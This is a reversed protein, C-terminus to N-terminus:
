TAGESSDDDEGARSKATAAMIRHFDDPDAPSGLRYLRSLTRVWAGDPDAFWLPSTAAMREGLRRHGSVRGILQLGPPTQAIAYGRPPSGKLLVPSISRSHLLRAADDALARLRRVLDPTIHAPDLFPYLRTLM